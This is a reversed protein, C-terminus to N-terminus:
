LAMVSEYFNCLDGGFCAFSLQCHIQSIYIGRKEGSGVKLNEWQRYARWYVFYTHRQSFENRSGSTCSSLLSLALLSRNEHRNIIHLRLHKIISVIPVYLMPLWNQESCIYLIISRNGVPCTPVIAAAKTEYACM